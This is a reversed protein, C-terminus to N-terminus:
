IIFLPPKGGRDNRLGSNHSREQQKKKVKREYRDTAGNKRLDIDDGLLADLIDYNKECKKCILLLLQKMDFLREGPIQRNCGPCLIKRVTAFDGVYYVACCWGDISHLSLPFMVFDKIREM